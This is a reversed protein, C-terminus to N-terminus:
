DLGEDVAQIQSTQLFVNKLVNSQHNNLSLFIIFLFWNLGENISMGVIFLIILLILGVFQLNYSSTFSLIDLYTLLCIYQPSTCIIIAMILVPCDEWNSLNALINGRLLGCLSRFNNEYNLNILLRILTFFYCFLVNEAM